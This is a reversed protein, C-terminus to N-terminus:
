IVTTFTCSLIFAANITVLSGFPIMYSSRGSLFWGIFFNAIIYPLIYAETSVEPISSVYLSAATAAIASWITYLIMTIITHFKYAGSSTIAVKWSKVKVEDLDVFRSVGFKCAEEPDSGATGHM